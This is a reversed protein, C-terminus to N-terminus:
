PELGAGTRARLNLGCSLAVSDRDTRASDCGFFDAYSLKASYTTLYEAVLGLSVAKSGQNFNPGCNTIAHPWAICPTRRIGARTM